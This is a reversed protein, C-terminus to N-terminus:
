QCENSNHTNNGARKANRANIACPSQSGPRQRAVNIRRAARWTHSGMARHTGEEAGVVPVQVLDPTRRIVCRRVDADQTRAAKGVSGRLIREASARGADDGDDVVLGPTAVIEGLRWTAPGSATRIGQRVRVRQWQRDATVVDVADVHSGAGPVAVVVGRADRGAVICLALVCDEVARVVVTSAAEVVAVGLRAVVIGAVAVHFGDIESIDFHPAVTRAIAGPDHRVE